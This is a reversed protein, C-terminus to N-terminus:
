YIHTYVKGALKHVSYEYNIAVTMMVLTVSFM